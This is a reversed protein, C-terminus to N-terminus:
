WFSDNIPVTKENGCYFRKESKFQGITRRKLMFVKHFIQVFAKIKLFSTSLIYGKNKM